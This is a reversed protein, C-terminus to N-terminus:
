PSTPAESKIRQSHVAALKSVFTLESRLTNLAMKAEVILLISAYFLFCAGLLGFSVPIWAQQPSFITVFGLAVSTGVFTAAAMYFISLARALLSARARMQDLQDFIMERREDILHVSQAQHMVTEMSDSLARVRDIVRGLRNSTSLIFTGCASILLAPTIMSTLVAVAASVSKILHDTIVDPWM